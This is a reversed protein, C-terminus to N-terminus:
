VNQRWLERRMRDFVRQYMEEETHFLTGNIEVKLGGGGAPVVTEGSHVVALGTQSITGGSALFPVGIGRLFDAIGGVAGGVANGVSGAIDSIIDVTFSLTKGATDKLWELLSKIPEPLEISLNMLIDAAGTVSDYIWKLVDYIAGGLSLGLDMLIEAGTVAIDWLWKLFDYVAGAAKFGLDLVAGTVGAATDWLWKLFGTGLDAIAGILNMSLSLLGSIGSSLADGLTTLGDIFVAGAGKWFDDWLTGFWLVTDIFGKLVFILIPLFPLLVLDLLLGLTKGLIEDLRAMIKSQSVMEELTANLANVSPTLAPPM